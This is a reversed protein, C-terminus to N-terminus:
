FAMALAQMSPSFSIDARSVVLVVATKPWTIPYQVYIRAGSLNEMRKMGSKLDFYRRIKYFVSEGSKSPLKRCVFERIGNKEFISAADM